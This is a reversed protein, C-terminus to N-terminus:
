KEWKKLPCEARKIRAKEFAEIQAQSRIKKTKKPNDDPTDVIDLTVDKEISKAELENEIIEEIDDM